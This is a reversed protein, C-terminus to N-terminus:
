QSNERRQLTPRTCKYYQSIEEACQLSEPHSFNQRTYQLCTRSLFLSQPCPAERAALVGQTDHLVTQFVDLIRINSMTVATLDRKTADTLVLDPHAFQHGTVEVKNGETNASEPVVSAVSPPTVTPQQQQASIKLNALVTAMNKRATPEDPLALPSHDRSAQTGGM